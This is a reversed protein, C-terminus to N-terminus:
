TKDEVEIDLKEALADAATLAKRKTTYVESTALIAGNGTAKLVWWWGYKPPKSQQLVIRYM